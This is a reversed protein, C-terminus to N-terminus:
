DLRSARLRLSNAIVSVSSFSMAAGAIMPSLLLGFVPYLAGAALPIGLANYIFAFFLNQRINRMIARSLRLARVLARLDSKVLTIGASEIAVDAGTGMAIGVDAVALAPADNIGDGAMAVVAGNRQLDSVFRHKDAPLVGAHIEDIGLERGVARATKENDGTCIIVKIGLARLERIAQASGEKVPDAIAILGIVKQDRAVWVVTRALDQQESSVRRWEATLSVGRDVLFREGGVLISAGSTTGTVGGGTVSQFDRAAPLKLGRGQAADVIARALPHESFQELGAAVRLAEEETVGPAALTTRVRPRGVTLTGTKDIILHTVREAREIAEANKILIGSTAARGVGVMISMPTALGLACPCAIILVAVANVLAYALAPAPGWIAWVVFTLAACAIVGPVFYGAIRDTLRQIPARSRQAAAVQQIIQALLTEAGVREARMLFAGTQNLTAGIVKDGVGKAAPMSEGTIMSEDIHTQGELIVGDVPAKEGPRVRLEDGKVIQNVPIEEERGARVRHATKAGLHLLAQIALGTRGRAKAELAQGLLALTTIVSAAEFYLGVEGHLRFSGPFIGPAIVAVVSFGYAAGVGSAILTFMNPSRQVLSNWARTFFPAGAWVVVPTSLAFEIWKSVGRPWGAALGGGPLHAGMALAFVPASLGLSLWFRRSLAAVGASEAADSAEDAVTKPELAMGCKPCFGARDSEVDPHMPCIFVVRQAPRWAPNRELAMGCKPCDGPSDSAVGPCMPCFFKAEPAPGGGGGLVAHTSDRDSLGTKSACCAHGGAEASPPRVTSVPAAPVAGGCRGPGAQPSSMVPLRPKALFSARCGDCCFYYKEGDREAWAATKEDVTMGCVPDKAM